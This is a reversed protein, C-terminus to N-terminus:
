VRMRVNRWLKRDAAKEARILDEMVLIDRGNLQRINKVIEESIEHEGSIRREFNKTM